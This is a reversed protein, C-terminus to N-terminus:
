WRQALPNRWFFHFPTLASGAKTLESFGPNCVTIRHSPLKVIDNKLQTPWSPKRRTFSYSRKTWSVRLYCPGDHLSNLYHQGASFYSSFTFYQFNTGIVKKRLVKTPPGNGGIKARGSELPMSRAQLTCHESVWGRTSDGVNQNYKCQINTHVKQVLLQM